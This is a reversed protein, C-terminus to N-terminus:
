FRKKFSCLHGDCVDHKAFEFMLGLGRRSNRSCKGLVFETPLRVFFRVGSACQRPVDRDHRSVHDPGPRLVLRWERIKCRQKFLGGAHLLNELSVLFADFGDPLDKRRKIIHRRIVLQDAMFSPFGTMVMGFTINKRM